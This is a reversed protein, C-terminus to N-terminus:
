DVGLDNDEGAEDIAEQQNIWWAFLIIAGVGVLASFWSVKMYLITFGIVTAITFVPVLIFWILINLWNYGKTKM